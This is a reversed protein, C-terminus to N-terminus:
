QQEINIKKKDDLFMLCGKWTKSFNLKEYLNIAPENMADVGLIVEFLQKEKLQNLYDSIVKKAIKKGRFSPLIGIELVMGRINSTATMMGGCIQDNCKILKCDIMFGLSDFSKKTQILFKKAIEKEGLNEFSHLADKSEAYSLSIAEVFEDTIEDSSITKINESDELIIPNYNKLQCNMEFRNSITKFGIKNYFDEYTSIERQHLSWCEAWVDEFGREYANLIGKQVLATGIGKRQYRPIILPFHSLIKTASPIFYNDFRIIGVPKDKIYAILLQEAQTLNRIDQLFSQVVDYRTINQTKLYRMMWRYRKLGELFVDSWDSAHDETAHLITLKQPLKSM